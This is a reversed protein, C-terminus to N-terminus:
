YRMLIRAQVELSEKERSPLKLCTQLITTNKLLSAYNSLGLTRVTEANEGEKSDLGSLKMFSDQNQNSEKIDDFADFFQDEVPPKDIGKSEENFYHESDMKEEERSELNDDKNSNPDKKSAELNMQDPNAESYKVLTKRKPNLAKEKILSLVHKIKNV